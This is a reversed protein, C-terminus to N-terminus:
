LSMDFNVLFVNKESDFTNQNSDRETYSYQAGVTVWRRWDYNVGFSYIDRDDERNSQFYDDDGRSYSVTSNLRDSWSHLWTVSYDRSEIFDGTGNTENPSGSVSLLFHSYTKPSWTVDVDWVTLTEEGKARVDFEKETRGVKIAGTTKATAEWEVGVAYGQETSDISGGLLPDNDYSFDKDSAEVFLKTKGGSIKGYLRAAVYAEDRDRFVTNTRNNRYEIDTYGAELWWGLMASERGFDLEVEVNRIDYEDPEPRTLAIVGESSGEGRNDHSRGYFASVDARLFDRPELNADFSLAHDDYDDDDSDAFIGYDGTYTVAFSNAGKQALWQVRPKLQTITDSEEQTAQSFINDDHKVVVELTPILKGGGLEISQPDPASYTFTSSFLLALGFVRISM